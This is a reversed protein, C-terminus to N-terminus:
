ESYVEAQVSIVISYKGAEVGFQTDSEDKGSEFPWQWELTMLQQTAPLFVINEYVLEDAILWEEPDKKEYNSIYKNNMKLRYQMFHNYELNGYYTEESLKIGYILKGTSENSMAFDYKGSKGPYIKSDFVAVTGQEEWNGGNDVVDFIPIVEGSIPTNILSVFVFAGVLAALTLMVISLNSSGTNGERQKIVDGVLENNLFLQDKTCEFIGLESNYVSVKEKRDGIKRKEKSTFEAVLNGKFDRIEKNKRIAYIAQNESDTVLLDKKNVKFDPM